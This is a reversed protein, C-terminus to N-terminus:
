LIAGAQLVNMVCAAALRGHLVRPEMTDGKAWGTLAPRSAPVALAHRMVSVRLIGCLDGSRNCLQTGLCVGDHTGVRTDCLFVRSDARGSTTALM